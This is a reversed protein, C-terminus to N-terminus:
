YDVKGEAKTNLWLACACGSHTHTHTDLRAMQITYKHM